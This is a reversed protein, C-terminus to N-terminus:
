EVCAKGRRANDPVITQFDVFDDKLSDRTFVYCAGALYQGKGGDEGDAYSACTVMGLGSNFVTPAAYGFDSKKSYRMDQKLHAPTCAHMCTHKHTRTIGEAQTNDGIHALMCATTSSDRMRANIFALAPTHTHTYACVLAGLQTHAHM